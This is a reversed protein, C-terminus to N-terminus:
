RLGRCEFVQLWRYVQGNFRVPFVGLDKISAFEEHLAPPAQTRVEPAAPEPFPGRNVVSKMWEGAPYRPPDLAVVFLANHGKRTERYRYHPWFYFQNRPTSSTICYVLPETRVRPRAEPTYFNLLSTLGYHEGIVFAPRGEAQLKQRASEVVQATDSWGRVRRLPDLNAPLPRGLFRNVLKPALLFVMVTLGIAVGTILWAPVKRVGERWRREWYLAMLCFLPVVMPAIWNPHVRTYLSYVWHVLFVAPGFCFLYIM